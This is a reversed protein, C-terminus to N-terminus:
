AVELAPHLSQGAKEVGTCPHLRWEAGAPNQLGEATLWRTVFDSRIPRTLYDVRSCGDSLHSLFFFGPHKAAPEVLYADAIRDPSGGVLCAMAHGDVPTLDHQSQQGAADVAARRYEGIKRLRVGNAVLWEAAELRVAVLSATKEVLDVRSPASALIKTYVTILGSNRTGTAIALEKTTPNFDAWPNRPLAAVSDASKKPQDNMTKESRLRPYPHCYTCLAEFISTHNQLAQKKM